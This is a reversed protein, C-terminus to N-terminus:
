LEVRARRVSTAPAAFEWALGLETDLAMRRGLVRQTLL